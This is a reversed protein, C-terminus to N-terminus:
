TAYASTPSGDLVLRSELSEVKLCAQRRQGAPVARQHKWRRMLELAAKALMSAAGDLTTSSPCNAREWAPRAALHACRQVADRLVDFPSAQNGQEGPSSALPRAARAGGGPEGAVHTQRIM